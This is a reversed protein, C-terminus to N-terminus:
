ELNELEKRQKGTLGAVVLNYSHDTLDFIIEPRLRGDLILSNWHKKNMHYGPLITEEHEERLEIAKEPDCKLNIRLPVDNLSALAFMRGMVKFVLSDPGFPLEETVAKKALCYNRFIEIDM